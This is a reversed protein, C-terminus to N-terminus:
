GKIVGLPKLKVKIKVLDQQDHMVQDIDKYAGPAEDLDRKSRLPHVIGSMKRQEEALDLRRTAENRGMRRGAGHSSSMFSEPNGLGEPIYSCTGM